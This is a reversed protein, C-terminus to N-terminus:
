NDSEDGKPKDVSLTINFNDLKEIAKAINTLGDARGAAIVISSLFLGVAIISAEIIM